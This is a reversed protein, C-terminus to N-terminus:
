KLEFVSWDTEDFDDFYRMVAEDPRLGPWAHYMDEGCTLADRKGADPVRQLLFRVCQGIWGNPSLVSSNSM